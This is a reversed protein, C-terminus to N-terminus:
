GGWDKTRVIFRVICVRRRWLASGWLCPAERSMGTKYLLSCVYACVRARMCARARTRAQECACVGVGVGVGMCM